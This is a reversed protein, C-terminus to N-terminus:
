THHEDCDNLAKVICGLRRKRQKKSNENPRRSNTKLLHQSSSIASHKRQLGGSERILSWFAKSSISQRSKEQMSHGKNLSGAVPGSSSKRSLSAKTVLLRSTPRSFVAM